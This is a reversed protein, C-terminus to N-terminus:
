KINALKIQFVAPCPILNCTKFTDKIIFKKFSARFEEITMVGGFRDLLQWSPAERIAYPTNPYPYVGYMDKYVSNMIYIGTNAITLGKSLYYARLCEFSCVKCTECEYGELIVLKSISEVIQKVDSSEEIKMNSIKNTLSEVSNIHSNCLHTKPDARQECKDHLCTHLKCLHTKPNAVFECKNNKCKFREIHNDQIITKTVTVIGEKTRTTTEIYSRRKRIPVYMGYPIQCKDNIEYKDWVCFVNKISQSNTFFTINSKLDSVVKPSLFESSYNVTKEISKDKKHINTYIGSKSLESDIKKLDKSSVKLSISKSSM